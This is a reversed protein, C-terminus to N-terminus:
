VKNNYRNGGMDRWRLCCFYYIYKAELLRSHPVVTSLASHLKSAYKQCSSYLGNVILLWSARAVQNEVSTHM